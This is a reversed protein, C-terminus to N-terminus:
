DGLHNGTVGTARAAGHTTVESCPPDMHIRTTPGRRGVRLFVEVPVEGIRRKAAIRRRVEDFVADQELLAAVDHEGRHAPLSGLNQYRLGGQGNRFYCGLRLDSPASEHGTKGGDIANTSGHFLLRQAQAQLAPAVTWACAEHYDLPLVTVVVGAREDQVAVFCQADPPSFFLRHLLRGRSGVTVALDYDLLIAVEAPTLSLRDLVRSWAHRSYATPPM